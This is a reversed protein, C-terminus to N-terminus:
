LQTKQGKKAKKPKADAEAQEVAESAGGEVGDGTTAGTDIVAGAEAEIKTAGYAETKVKGIDIRGQQRILAQSDRDSKVNIIKM